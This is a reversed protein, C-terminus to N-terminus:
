NRSDTYVYKLEEEEKKQKEALLSPTDDAVHSFPCTAGKTCTGQKFFICGIQSRDKTAQVGSPHRFICQENTCKGETWFKCVTTNDVAAESHRYECATGKTCQGQLFWFCDTFKKQEM